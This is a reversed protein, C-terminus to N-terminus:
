NEGWHISEKPYGKPFAQPDCTHAQELVEVLEGASLSAFADDKLAAKLAAVKTDHSPLTETYLCALLDWAKPSVFPRM